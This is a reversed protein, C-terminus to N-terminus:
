YVSCIHGRGFSISSKIILKMRGNINWVVRAGISNLMVHRGSNCPPRFMMCESGISLESQPIIIALANLSWLIIPCVKRKLKRLSNSLTLAFKKRSNPFPLNWLILFIRGKQHRIYRVILVRPSDTSSFQAVYVSSSISDMGIKRGAM